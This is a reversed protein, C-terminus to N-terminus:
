TLVLEIMESKFSGAEGIRVFDSIEEGTRREGRAVFELRRRDRERDEGRGAGVTGEGLRGASCCLM